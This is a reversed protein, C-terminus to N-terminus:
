EPNGMPRSNIDNFAVTQWKTNFEPEIRSKVSLEHQFYQQKFQQFRQFFLM